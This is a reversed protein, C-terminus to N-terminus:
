NDAEAIEEGSSAPSAVHAQCSQATAESHDLICLECHLAGSVATVMLPELGNKVVKYVCCSEPFSTVKEGLEHKQPYSFPDRFGIQHM